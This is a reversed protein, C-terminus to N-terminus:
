SVRSKKKNSVLNSSPHSIYLIQENEVCNSRHSLVFQHTDCLLWQIHIFFISFAISFSFSLVRRHSHIQCPFDNTHASYQNFLSTVYFIISLFHLKSIYQVWKWRKSTNTMADYAADPLHIYLYFKWTGVEDWRKTREEVKLISSVSFYKLFTIGFLSNQIHTNECLPIIFIKCCIPRFHYDNTANITIQWITLMLNISFKNSINLPFHLLFIM